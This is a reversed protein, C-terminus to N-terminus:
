LEVAMHEPDPASAKTPSHGELLLVLPIALLFLVGGLFFAREFGIMAAQGGVQLDMMKLARATATPLDDGGAQFGARMAALRAYVTPDTAGIHVGLAAKAQATYRELLAAFIAV